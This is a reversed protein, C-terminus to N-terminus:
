RDDENGKKQSLWHPTRQNAEMQTLDINMPASTNFLPPVQEQKVPQVDWENMTEHPNLLDFYHLKPDSAWKGNRTSYVPIDTEGVQYM